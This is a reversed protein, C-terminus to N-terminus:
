EEEVCLPCVRDLSAAVMEVVGRLYGLRECCTDAEYELGAMLVTRMRSRNFVDASGCKRCREGNRGPHRGGCLERVADRTSELSTMESGAGCGM